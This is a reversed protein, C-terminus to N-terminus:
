FETQKDKEAELEGETEGEGERSDREREQRGSEGAERGQREAAEGGIDEGRKGKEIM